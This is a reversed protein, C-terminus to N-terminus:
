VGDSGEVGDEQHEARQEGAVAMAPAGLVSPGGRVHEGQRGIRRHRVGGRPSATGVVHPQLVQSAVIDADPAEVAARRGLRVLHHHVTGRRGPAARARASLHRALVREPQQQQRGLPVHGRGDPRLPHRLPERGAGRSSDGVGTWACRRARGTVARRGRDLGPQRRRRVPALLLPGVLVSPPNSPPDPCAPGSAPRDPAAPSPRGPSWTARRRPPAADRRTSACAPASASRTRRAM